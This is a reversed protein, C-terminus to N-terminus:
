LTGPQVEGVEHFGCHKVLTELSERKSPVKSTIGEHLIKIANELTTTHNILRLEEIDNGSIIFKKDFLQM